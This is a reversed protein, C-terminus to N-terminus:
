SYSTGPSVEAGISGFRGVEALLNLSLPHDDTAELLPSLFLSKIRMGSTHTLLQRITIDRGNDTDFDSIHRCVPDDLSLKGDQALLLIGAATVAKSNSAMRFLSDTAMALESDADRWGYAKHLVIKGRRAVLIVAGRLEDCEVARQVVAAAISLKEEDMQVSAPSAVSVVAPSEDCATTSLGSFGLGVILVLCARM